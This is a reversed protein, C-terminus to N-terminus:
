ARKIQEEIIAIREEFEQAERFKVLHNLIDNASSRQVNPSDAKDLLGVLTSVAKSSNIKLQVLASEILENRVREIEKKFQPKKLWEYYCNTSIGVLKCGEDICAHSALVPLAKRQKVTLGDNKM